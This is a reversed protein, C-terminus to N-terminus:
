PQAYLELPVQYTVYNVFPDDKLEFHPYIKLFPKATTSDVKELSRLLSLDSSPYKETTTWKRQIDLVSKVEDNETLALYLHTNLRGDENVGEEDRAVVAKIAFTRKNGEFDTRNINEAVTIPNSYKFLDLYDEDLIKGEAAFRPDLVLGHIKKRARHIHDVLSSSAKPQLFKRALVRLGLLMQYQEITQALNEAPVKVIEDVLQKIYEYYVATDDNKIMQEIKDDSM